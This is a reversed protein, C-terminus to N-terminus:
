LRPLCWGFRWVSPAHVRPKVFREGHIRRGRTQDGEVVRKWVKGEKVVVVLDVFVELDSRRRKPRGCRSEGRSLLRDTEKLSEQNIKRVPRCHDESRSASGFM